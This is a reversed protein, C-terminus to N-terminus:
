AGFLPECVFVPPLLLPLRPDVPFLLPRVFVPPVFLPECVVVPPLLLPLRPEVPELLPREFVPPVFLPECVVVPPLLLPLRPEVPFLLPREFVPPVFLPECLVFALLLERPPEFEFALVCVTLWVFPLWLSTFRLPWVTLVVVLPPLVACM